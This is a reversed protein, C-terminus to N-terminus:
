AYQYDFWHCELCKGTEPDVTKCDIKQCSQFQFQYSPTPPYKHEYAMYEDHYREHYRGDFSEPDWRNVQQGSWDTNSTPLELQLTDQCEICKDAPSVFPQLNRRDTYLRSPDYGNALVLYDSDLCVTCGANLENCDRCYDDTDHVQYDDCEPTAFLFSTINKNYDSNTGDYATYNYQCLEGCSDSGLFPLHRPINENIKRAVVSDAVAIICKYDQTVTTDDDEVCSCSIAFESKTSQFISKDICNQTMIWELFYRPSDPAFDNNLLEHTTIEIFELGSYDYAYYRDLVEEFSKGYADGHTSCPGQENLVRRGAMALAENWNFASLSSTWNVTAEDIAWPTAFNANAYTAGDKRLSNVEFYFQEMFYQTFSPDQNGVSNFDTSDFYDFFHNSFTGVLTSGDWGIEPTTQPQYCWTNGDMSQMGNTGCHHSNKTTHSRIYFKNTQHIHQSIYYWDHHGEPWWTSAPLSSDSFFAELDPKMAPDQWADWAELSRQNMWTYNKYSAEDDYIGYLDETGSREGNTILDSGLGWYIFDLIDLDTEEIPRVNSGLEIVCFEGFTPHCSCAMGIQTYGLSLLRRAHTIDHNTDSIIIDWAAEKNDAWNFKEPYVTFRYHEDFLAFDSLIDHMNEHDPIQPEYVNCGALMDVYESAARGLEDSWEFPAQDMHGATYVPDETTVDFLSPDVLGKGAYQTKQTHSANNILLDLFGYGNRFVGVRDCYQYSSDSKNYRSQIVDMDDFCFLDVQNAETRGDQLARWDRQWTTYDVFMDRQTRFM